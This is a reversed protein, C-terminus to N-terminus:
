RQRGAHRRRLAEDQGRTRGNHLRGRKPAVHNHHAIHAGVQMVVLNEPRNDDKQENLHHACEGRRLRRGLKAELVLVHEYEWPAAPWGSIRIYGRHDRVRHLGLLAIEAPTTAGM